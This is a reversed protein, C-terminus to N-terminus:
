VRKSASGDCNTCADLSLSANLKWLKTDFTFVACDPHGADESNDYKAGDYSGCPCGLEHNAAGGYDGCVMIYQMTPNDSLSPSSMIEHSNGDTQTSAAAAMSKDTIPWASTHTDIRSYM